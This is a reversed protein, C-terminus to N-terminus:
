AHMTGWGACEDVGCCLSSKNVSWDGDMLGVITDSPDLINCRPSLERINVNCVTM